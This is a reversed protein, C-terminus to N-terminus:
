YAIRRRLLGPELIVIRRGRRTIAGREEYFGLARNVSARTAGIMGALDDQTLAVEIEIADDAERGHAEALELLKKALRGQLDLFMLDGVGEDMQRITQALAALLGDIAVPSRHLFARFDARSLTATEVPELAVVTASRPGADLLAMEGFLDGPGVIALVAEDGRESPLVVKLRGRCVLHLTEGPDGWRIVAEGRRYTRPRTLAALRELEPRPVGRLMDSQSLLDVHTPSTV